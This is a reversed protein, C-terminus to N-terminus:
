SLSLLYIFQVPLHDADANEITSEYGVFWHINFWHNPETRSIKLVLSFWTPPEFCNFFWPKNTPKYSFLYIGYSRRSILLLLRRLVSQGRKSARRYSFPKFFLYLHTIIGNILHLRTEGAFFNINSSLKQWFKTYRWSGYVVCSGVSKITFLGVPQNIIFLIM